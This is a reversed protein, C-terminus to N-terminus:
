PTLGGGSVPWGHAECAAAIGLLDLGSLNYFRTVEEHGDLAILHWLGGQLEREIRLWGTADRAIRQEDRPRQLVIEDPGITVSLPPKTRLWIWFGFIAASMVFFLVSVVVTPVDGNGWFGRLSGALFVGGLLLFVFDTEGRRERFVAVPTGGGVPTQAATGAKSATVRLRLRM